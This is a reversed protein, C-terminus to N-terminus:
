TPSSEDCPWTSGLYTVERDHRIISATLSNEPMSLDDNIKQRPTFDGLGNCFWHGCPVEAFPVIQSPKPAAPAAEPVITCPRITLSGPKKVKGGHCDIAYGDVVIPFAPGGCIWESDALAMRLGHAAKAQESQVRRRALESAVYRRAARNVAGICAEAEDEVLDLCQADTTTWRTEDDWEDDPTFAASEVKVEANGITVTRAGLDIAEPKDIPMPMAVPDAQVIHFGRGNAALHRYVKQIAPGSILWCPYQFYVDSSDPLFGADHLFQADVEHNPTVYDSTVRVFEMAPNLRVFSAYRESPYPPISQPYAATEEKVGCADVGAATDGMLKVGLDSGNVLQM